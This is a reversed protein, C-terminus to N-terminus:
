RFGFGLDSIDTPELAAFRVPGWCVLSPLPGWTSTTHPHASVATVTRSHKSVSTCLWGNIPLPKRRVESFCCHSNIRSHLATELPRSLRLWMAVIGQGHPWLASKGQAKGSEGIRESFTETSCRSPAWSLAVHHQSMLTQIFCTDQWWFSVSVLRACKVVYLDCWCFCQTFAVSHDWSHKFTCM